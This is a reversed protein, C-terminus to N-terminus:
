FLSTQCISICMKFHMMIKLQLKLLDM